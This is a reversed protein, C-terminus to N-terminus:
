LTGCVKPCYTKSVISYTSFIHIDKPDPKSKTGQMILPYNGAADSGIYVVIGTFNKCSLIKEIVAKPFYAGSVECKGRNSYNNVSNCNGDKKMDFCPHTVYESSLYCKAAKKIKFESKGGNAMEMILPHLSDECGIFVNVGDGTANKLVYNLTDRTFYAGYNKSGSIEAFHHVYSRGHAKCIAGTQPPHTYYSCGTISILIFFCFVIQVNKM